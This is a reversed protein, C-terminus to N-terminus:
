GRISKTRDLRIGVSRRVEEVRGQGSRGRQKSRWEAYPAIYRYRPPLLPRVYRTAVLTGRAAREKLPGVDFGYMDRVNKPLTAFALRAVGKLIPRWEAEKPPELFLDAVRRAGDTVRLAGSREVSELWRRLEPVTPPIAARPVLILEAALMQEEHFRQRGADDLRGVTLREFLLASDVHCAHVYLLLEPDLADYRRGTVPDIGNIRTHVENIREAAEHAEAKTGFTITYTLILTRQLRRWPNREYMATQNAGAVVLPHAAQMLLARAGGFLVTVERHVQWSVSGPGFYGLDTSGDM